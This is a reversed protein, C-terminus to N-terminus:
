QESLALRLATPALGSAPHLKIDLSLFDRFSDAAEVPSIDKLKASRKWLANGVEAILLDPAILERSDDAFEALIRDAKDKHPEAIFWKIAVSADVVLLM